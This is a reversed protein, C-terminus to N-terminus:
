PREKRALKAENMCNSCQHGRGVVEVAVQCGLAKFVNIIANKHPECAYTSGSPCHVLHTAEHEM